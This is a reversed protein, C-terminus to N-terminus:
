ESDESEFPTGSGPPIRAPFSQGSSFTGITLRMLRKHRRGVRSPPRGPAQAEDAFRYFIFSDEALQLVIARARLAGATWSRM